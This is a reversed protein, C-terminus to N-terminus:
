QRGLGIALGPLTLHIDDEIPEGIQLANLHFSSPDRSRPKDLENRGVFRQAADCLPSEDDGVESM